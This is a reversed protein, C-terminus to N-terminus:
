PAAGMIVRFLQADGVLTDPAVGAARTVRLRYAEGALVGDYEAPTFLISAERLEGLVPPAPSVVTKPAAFNNVNLNVGLADDREFALSWNVAGVIATAAWLVRVLINGSPPSVWVYRVGHFDVEATKANPFVVLPHSNKVLSFGPSGEVFVADNATFYDFVTPSLAPTPSPAAAEGPTVTVQSLPTQTSSM